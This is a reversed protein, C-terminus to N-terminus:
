GLLDQWQNKSFIPNLQIAKQPHTQCWPERLTSHLSTLRREKERANGSCWLAVYYCTGGCHRLSRLRGYRLHASFMPLM